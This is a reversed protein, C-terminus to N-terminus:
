GSWWNRCGCQACAYTMGPPREVRVSGCRICVNTGTEFDAELSGFCFAWGYVGLRTGMARDITRLCWTVARLVAESGGTLLLARGPLRGVANGPHLFTFGSHLTRMATLPLGTARAIAAGLAEGNRFQNVHGGGRAVWRYLRDALTSGDPVAVFLGGGPKLVRGM